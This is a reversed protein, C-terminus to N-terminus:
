KMDHAGDINEDQGTILENYSRVNNFETKLKIRSLQKPYRYCISNEL